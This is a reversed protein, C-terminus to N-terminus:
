KWNKLHVKWLIDMKMYFFLEEYTSLTLRRKSM